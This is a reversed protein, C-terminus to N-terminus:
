TLKVNDDTSTSNVTTATVNGHADAKYTDVRGFPDTVTSVHGYADYTYTTALAEGDPDAVVKTVQYALAPSFEVRRSVSEDGGTTTITVQNATGYDYTTSTEVSASARTISAVRGSSDYGVEATVGDADTVGTIRGGNYTYTTVTVYTGDDAKRKVLFSDGVTEYSVVGTEPDAPAQSESGVGTWDIQSLDDGDWSLDAHRGQTDASSVLRGGADYAYRILNGSMDAIGTIRGATDFAVPAESLTTVPLELECVHFWENGASTNGLAVVRFAKAKVPVFTRSLWSRGSTTVPLGDTPTIDTFQTGDESYQLKYTYTRAPSERGDWLYVHAESLVKPSDLVYQLATSGSANWKVADYGTSGSIAYSGDTSAGTISGTGVATPKIGRVANTRKVALTGALPDRTYTGGSLQSFTRSTGDSDTFSMAGDHISVDDVRVEGYSNLADVSLSAYYAGSPAIGRVAIRRWSSTNEIFPPSAACGLWAKSENYFNVKVVVGGDTGAVFGATKIWASADLSQGPVVARGWDWSAPSIQLNGYSGTPRAMKLSYADTRGPTTRTVMSATSAWWYQAFGTASPTEFSPNPAQEGVFGLRPMSVQWGPGAGIDATRASDYVFGAGLAGGLGPAAFDTRSLLLRGTALDVTAGGASDQARYPEIGLGDSGSALARYEFPMWATWNSAAEASIGTVDTIVRLRTLYRGNQWAPSPVEAESPEVPVTLPGNVTKTVATTDAAGLAKVQIETRKLPKMFDHWVGASDLYRIDSYTWRVTPAGAITTEPNLVEAQAKPRTTFCCEFVPGGAERSAFKTWHATTNAPGWFVWGCAWGGNLWQQVASTVPFRTRQGQTVNAQSVMNADYSPRNNWTLSYEGWGGVIPAYVVAGTGHDYRWTCYMNLNASIVQIEAASRLDMLPQVDPMVYSYNVGAGPYYAVRLESSSGYNSNPYENTVFSDMTATYGNNEFTGYPQYTICPDIKVPWVREESLLWEQDAVVSVRWESGNPVLMYSVDTSHAPVAGENQLSDEMFPPTILYVPATSEASYLGIGGDETMRPDLDGTALDFTFVNKGRYRDLVITEKLGDATSVYELDVGPGFASKYTAQKPKVPDVTGIASPSPEGVLPIAAMVPRYSIAGGSSEISVWDTGVVEPLSVQFANAKNRWGKRGPNTERVLTDDISKWGGGAEDQFHIPEAFSEYKYTGDGNDFM